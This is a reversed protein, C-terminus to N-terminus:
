LGHVQRVQIRRRVRRQYVRGGHSCAGRLLIAAASLSLHPPVSVSDTQYDDKNTYSPTVQTFVGRPEVEVRPETHRTSANTLCARPWAQYMGSVVRVKLTGAARALAICRKAYAGTKMDAVIPGRQAAYEVLYQRQTPSM